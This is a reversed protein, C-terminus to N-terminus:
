GDRKATIAELIAAAFVEPKERQAFHGAGEVLIRKYGGTFHREKGESSEPRSAGDEAGQILVTPASIDPLGAMFSEADEYGPDPEEYGWRYRYSHMVVDVFDPNDFSRATAEYEADSFRWGPSWTRWLERCFGAADARLADRGRDTCFFWQYWYARVQDVSMRQAPRGTGYGAPSVILANLRKPRMAAVCYSARAGWDHGVLAFRELELADAFATIDAALATYQASRPTEPNLFRTPGYGRVYPCLTRLGADNLIPVVRDWTKADDPFGHVLIVPPAAEDGSELYGIELAPTTISKLAGPM